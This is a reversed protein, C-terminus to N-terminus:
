RPKSGSDEAPDGRLVEVERELAELRQRQAEVIARLELVGAEASVRPTLAALSGAVMVFRIVTRFAIRMDAVTPLSFLMATIMTVLLTTLVAYRIGVRCRTNVLPMAM